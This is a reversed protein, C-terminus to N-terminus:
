KAPMIQLSGNRTSVHVLPSPSGLQVRKPARESSEGRLRPCEPLRCDLQSHASTEAEIGSNFGEPVHLILGGNQSRAELLEGSWGGEPLRVVIGGNQSELKVEGSGRVLTIGGNTSHANVKGEVDRLSVGGNVSHLDILAQTSGSKSISIGGNQSRGTVRGNLNSLSLGGNHVSAEIALDRPVYIFFQVTWSSRRDSGGEPERARVKGGETSITLQKLIAQATADDDASALKCARILIDPQDWGRISVGGNRSGEVDLLSVAARSLTQREEAVQRAPYNTFSHEYQKQCDEAISDEDTKEREIKKQFADIPNYAVASILFTFTLAVALKKIM